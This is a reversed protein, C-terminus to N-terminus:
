SDSRTKWPGKPDAPGGLVKQKGVNHSLKSIQMELAAEELFSEQSM